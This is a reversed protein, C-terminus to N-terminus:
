RGLLIALVRRWLSQRRVLRHQGELLIGEGDIHVVNQGITFEDGKMKEAYRRVRDGMV